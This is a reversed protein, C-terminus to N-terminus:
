KPIRIYVYEGDVHVRYVPVDERAPGRLVNGSRVDFQALHVPCTLVCGALEGDSLGGGIHPCDDSVAYVVGSVKALCILEHGIEVRRLGGEPIDRVRAVRVLRGSAEQEASPGAQSQESM